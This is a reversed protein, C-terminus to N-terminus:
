QFSGEDCERKKLPGANITYESRAPKSALIEQYINTATPQFLLRPTEGLRFGLGFFGGTSATFTVPKRKFSVCMKGRGWCIEYHNEQVNTEYEIM